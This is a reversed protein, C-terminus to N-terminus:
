LHGALPVLRREQDVDLLLTTLTHSGIVPQDSQGGFVCVITGKNDDIQVMVQGTLCEQRQGDPRRLRVTRQPRVRLRKLVPAPAVAFM